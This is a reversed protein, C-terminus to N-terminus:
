IYPQQYLHAVSAQGQKLSFLAGGINTSNYEREIILLCFRYGTWHCAGTLLGVEGRRRRPSVHFSHLAKSDSEGHMRLQFQLFAEM